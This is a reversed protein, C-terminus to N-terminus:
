HFHGERCHREEHANIWNWGFPSYTEQPRLYIDCTYEDWEAWGDTGETGSVHDLFAQDIEHYVIPCDPGPCLPPESDSGGAGGCGTLITTAIVIIAAIRNM